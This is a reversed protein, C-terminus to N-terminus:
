RDTVSIGPSTSKTTVASGVGLIVTAVLDVDGPIQTVSRYVKYGLIEDSKPNVPYVEGTFDSDAINKVIVYGLKGPKGSAGIVAVSKPKFFLEIM